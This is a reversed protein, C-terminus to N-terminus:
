SVFRKRKFERSENSKEPLFLLEDILDIKAVKNYFVNISNVADRIKQRQNDIDTNTAKSTKAVLRCLVPFKQSQADKRLVLIEGIAKKFDSTTDKITMPCVVHKGRDNGSFIVRSSNKFNQADPATFNKTLRRKNKAKSTTAVVSDATKKKSFTPFLEGIYKKAEKEIDGEATTAPDGFMGKGIWGGVVDLVRDPTMDLRLLKRNCYLQFAERYEDSPFFGEELVYARIEPKGTVNNPNWNPDDEYLEELAEKRNNCEIPMHALNGNADKIQELFGPEEQGVASIAKKLDSVHKDSYKNERIQCTTEDIAIVDELPVFSEAYGRIVKLCHQAFDRPDTPHKGNKYPSPIVTLTNNSM